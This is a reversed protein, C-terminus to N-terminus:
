VLPDYSSVICPHSTNRFKLTLDSSASSEGLWGNQPGVSAILMEIEPTTEPESRTAM